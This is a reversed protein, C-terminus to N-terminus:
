AGDDDIFEGDDPSTGGVTGGEDNPEEPEPAFAESECGIGDNDGDLEHPDSGVVEFDRATIDDCSLDPPPPPICLDPYSPDCVPEELTPPTPSLLPEEVTILISDSATQLTSDIVVLDVNYTGAVDFTHEVTEDDSEESSGDGFDWSYTFPEAGGTLNAEFEFTAPAVGETDNSIIDVSTLPPPEEVTISMSDSATRGSSDTVTLDVNYTDAVDFTHEVDDDSEESSGDGFDWNITYPELGGAVDAEFDFTAPAVGETDSSTIVATLPVTSAAILEFSDFVQRVSAPLLIPALSFSPRTAEATTTATSNGEYFISYGTMTGLNRPTAATATLIFYGSKTENLATSYTMEVLKAPVVTATRSSNQGTSIDVNMTTDASNVIQIDRYGVEQLKQIHYALIANPITDRNIVTFIDDSSIGLRTGLNPYRIIHIVEEQAQQCNGIYRNSGGVSPLSSQQQEQPCLQALIGYGQLVEAALTFGTNNMDQIVWGEPLQVRFSDKASLLTPSQTAAPQSTQTQQQQQQQAYTTIFNAALLIIAIAVVTATLAIAKAPSMSLRSSVRM